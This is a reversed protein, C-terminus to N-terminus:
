IAAASFPKDKTTLRFRGRVASQSDRGFSRDTNVKIVLTKMFLKLTSTLIDKVRCPSGANEVHLLITMFLSSMIGCIVLVAQPINVLAVSSTRLREM